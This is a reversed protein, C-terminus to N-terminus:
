YINLWFCTKGKMSELGALAHLLLMKFVITSKPPSPAITQPNEGFSRAIQPQSTRYPQKM